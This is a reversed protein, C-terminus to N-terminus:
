FSMYLLFESAPIPQGDKFWEVQMTGDGVPTLTAEFHCKNGESIDINRLPHTFKPPETPGEEDETKAQHHAREVHRLYVVEPEPEKRLTPM